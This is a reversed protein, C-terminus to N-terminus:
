KGSERSSAAAKGPSGAVQPDSQSSLLLECDADDMEIDAEALPASGRLREQLNSGTTATRATQELASALSPLERAALKSRQQRLEEMVSLAPTRQHGSLSLRSDRRTKDIKSQIEDTEAIVQQNVGYAERLKQRRLEEEQLLEMKKTRAAILMDRETMLAVAQADIAAIREYIAAEEMLQRTWVNSAAWQEAIRSTFEPGCILPTVVALGVAKASAEIYEPGLIGAVDTKDIKNIEDYYTEAALEGFAKAKEEGMATVKRLEEEPLADEYAMLIEADDEEEEEEEEEPETAEEGGTGANDSGEPVPVTPKGQPVLKKWDPVPEVRGRINLAPVSALGVTEFAHGMVVRLDHLKKEESYDGPHVVVSLVYRRILELAVGRLVEMWYDGNNEKEIWGIRGQVNSDQSCSHPLMSVVPMWFDVCEYLEFTLGDLNRFKLM